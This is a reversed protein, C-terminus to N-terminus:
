ADISAAECAPLGAGEFVEFILHVRHEEGLNHGGHPVLNNVEYARGVALHVAEDVFTFRAQPNTILPVHIKHARPNSGAGDRHLDIEHGALLQALMVKPFRPEAFAYPVVAQQMVPLLLSKWAHWSPNAYNDLPNRNGRIFRFVIHRTHHFVEFNNEKQGDEGAWTAESIGSVMRQLRAIEVAGLDRVRAPKRVIPPLVAPHEM